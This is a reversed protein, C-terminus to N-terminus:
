CSGNGYAVGATPRSAPKCFTAATLHWTLWRVCAAHHADDRDALAYLVGTDVVIV